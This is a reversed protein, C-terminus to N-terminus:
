FVSLNTFVRLVVLLARGGRLNLVAAAVSARTARCGRPIRVAGAAKGSAASCGSIKSSGGEGSPLSFLRAIECVSPM